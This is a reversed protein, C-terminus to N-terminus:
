RAAAHSVVADLMDRLYSEKDEEQFLINRSGMIPKEMNWLLQM